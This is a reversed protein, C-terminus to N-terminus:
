GCPMPMWLPMLRTSMVRVTLGDSRPLGPSVTVTNSALLPLTSEVWLTEM